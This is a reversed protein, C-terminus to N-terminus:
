PFRAVRTESSHYGSPDGNERNPATVPDRSAVSETEDKSPSESRQGMVLSGLSLGLLFTATATLLPNRM